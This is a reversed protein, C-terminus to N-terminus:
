TGNNNNKFMFIAINDKEYVPKLDKYGDLKWGPYLAKDWVIYDLRYRRLLNIDWGEAELGALVSNVKTLERELTYQKVYPINFIDHFKHTNIEIMAAQTWLIRPVEGLGFNVNKFKDIDFFHVLLTREIIEKDNAMLYYGNESYYVNAHTYVPVLQMFASHSFIVADIPTNNNIWQLIEAYNQQSEEIAPYSLSARYHPWNFSQLRWAPVVLMVAIIGIVAKDFVTRIDRTREFILYVLYHGAIAYLFIPMFSWHNANEITLGTIVQHNPYIVNAILLSFIIHARPERNLKYYRTTFIYLALWALAVALRPFTEPWHTVYVGMRAAMEAYLPSTTGSFVRIFYPIAVIGATFLFIIHYKLQKYNKTILLILGYIGLVVLLFSWHFFYTLFLVGLSVGCAFISIFKNGSKLVLRFWNVLFLLLIPFSIEPHIPKTMGGSVFTFIFLPLLFASLRNPYIAMLLLYFLAAIIAPAIFDLAVQLNPISIHLDKASFALLLEGGTAQPYTTNKQEFYYPNNMDIHGDFAEHVRSLYFNADGNFQPWIGQFDNGMRQLSFFLPLISFLGVLISILLLPWYKKILQPNNRM